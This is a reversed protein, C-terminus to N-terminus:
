ETTRLVTLGLSMFYQGAQHLLQQLKQCDEELQTYRRTLHHYKDLYEDSDKKVTALEESLAKTRDSVQQILLFNPNPPTNIFM